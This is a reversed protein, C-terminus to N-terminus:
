VISEGRVLKSVGNAIFLLVVSVVSKMMGIITALAVSGDGLGLRYVYYDLVEIWDKNASTHFVYYQDMGNSLCGAIAMLFLVMFTPMLGPVTIHWMRKFRGAGDVTAAEYLQQDIGSIAAIYIIASWGLGKWIGFLLMWICTAFGSFQLFMKPENYMGLGIAFNNIFGDSEFLARAISYVLVWSIFNPITTVTQVIKKFWPRRIESIFIAFIVPLVQTSLGLGSMVLTNRLVRVIEQRQSPREVLFKFWKFGVFDRFSLDTGPTYDYFSYRWGWLPLYSFVIVLAIFPLAMLFLKYNQKFEYTDEEAPIPLRLMSALAFLFCAAMFIMYAYIGIPRMPVLKTLDITEENLRCAFPMLATSAFGILSALMMVTASVKRFKLEGFSLCFGVVLAIVTFFLTLALVYMLQYGKPDALGRSFSGNNLNEIYSKFGLASSWLVKNKNVGDAIRGPNLGPIFTFLILLAATLRAFMLSGEGSIYLGFAFALVAVVAAAAILGFPTSMQLFGKYDAITTGLDRQMEASFAGLKNSSVVNLILAAGSFVIGCGMISSALKKDKAASLALGAISVAAGILLLIGSCYLLHVMSSQYYQKAVGEKFIEYFGKSDALTAFLSKETMKGSVNLINLAPVFAFAVLAASAIGIVVLSFAPKYGEFAARVKTGIKKLSPAAKIAAAIFMIVILFMVLGLAVPTKVPFYDKEKIGNLRFMNYYDVTHTTAGKAGICMAIGSVLAVVSGIFAVISGLNRKVFAIVLGVVTVAVAILMVLTSYYAVKFAWGSLLEYVGNLGKVSFAFASYANGDPLVARSLEIVYSYFGGFVSAFLSESNQISSFRIANAGPIVALVAIGAAAALAIASYGNTNFNVVFRKVARFLRLLPEDFAKLAVYAGALVFLLYIIFGQGLAVEGTGSIGDAVPKSIMILVAALIQAIMAGLYVYRFKSISGNALVAAASIIYAIVSAAILLLAAILLANVVGLNVGAIKYPAFSFLMSYFSKGGSSIISAPNLASFLLAVILAAELVLMYVSQMGEEKRVKDKEFM